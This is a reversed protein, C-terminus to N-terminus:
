PRSSGALAAGSHRGCNVCRPWHGNGNGNGMCPLKFCPRLSTPAHQAILAEVAAVAETFGPDGCLTNAYDAVERELREADIVTIGPITELGSTSGFTNFDIVRLPRAEFDRVGRVDEAGLVPRGRDIGFHVIDAEALADIVARDSYEDVRLRRGNRIARRLLKMQGGHQGRYAFAIRAAHVDFKEYLCDLISRSTTSGGIVLHQATTLELGASERLQALAAHCYGVSFRGWATEDRVQEAFAAATEVLRKARPGATGSREAMRYTNEFQEAVDRDGPLGSNLGCVTRMLHHWAEPGFLVNVGLADPEDGMLLARMHAVVCERQAAERADSLWGYFEFRHCTNWVLGERVVGAAKLQKLLALVEDQSRKVHRLDAPSSSRLAPGPGSGVRSPLSAGIMVLADLGSDTPEQGPTRLLPPYKHGWSTMPRAGRLVLNKLADMFPGYTNLAPCLHFEGGAAEFAARLGLGVEELTELCDVTFSVPCVLVRKQGEARLAELREATSPRLWEVPGMRSQFSLSSREVPWGLRGRLLTVTRETHRQYPDGRRVYSVPLGHASFLLHTSEPDLGHAEVYEAILQAQANLYGVDDYWTTRAAVNIHQARQGLARYLEHIVTGTTTRSFQPYMPVVVVEGIGAAEIEDLVEAIGPRGYRMAVYVRWGPPLEAALATAQDEMIARM